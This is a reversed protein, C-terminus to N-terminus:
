CKHPSHQIKHPSLTMQWSVAGDKGLFFAFAVIQDFLSRTPALLVESMEL